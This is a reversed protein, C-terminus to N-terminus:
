ELDCAIVARGSSGSFPITKSKTARPGCYRTWGTKLVKMNMNSSGGLDNLTLLSNNNAVVPRATSM